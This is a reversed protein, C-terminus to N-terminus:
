QDIIIHNQRSNDGNSLRYSMHMLLEFQRLLEDINTTGYPTQLTKGFSGDERNPMNHTISYNIEKKYNIHLHIGFSSYEDSYKEEISRVKEALELTTIM